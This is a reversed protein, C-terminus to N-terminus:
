AATHSMRFPTRSPNAPLIMTLMLVMEGVSFRATLASTSAAPPCNASAGTEPDTPGAVLPVSSIRNPPLSATKFGSCFINERTPLFVKWKPSTPLPEPAFSTKFESKPMKPSAYLSAISIARCNPMSVSVMTSAMPPEAIFEGMNWVLFDRHAFRSNGGAKARLCAEM